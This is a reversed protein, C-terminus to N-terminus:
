HARDRERARQKMAGLAEELSAYPGLGQFEHSHGQRDKVIVGGYERGALQTLVRLAEPMQCMPCEPDEMPMVVEQLGDPLSGVGNPSKRKSRSAKGM